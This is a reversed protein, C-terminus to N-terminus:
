RPLQGFVKAFWRHVGHISGVPEAFMLVCRGHVATMGYESCAAIAQPSQAGQQLWIRTIGKAAADRVIRESESPQTCVLVAGVGKPLDAIRAYCTEGGISTAKPNVPLVTHGRAKLERSITASFSKEDRSLGALAITKQALIDKVDQLTNMRNREKTRDQLVACAPCHWRRPMRRFADMAFESM